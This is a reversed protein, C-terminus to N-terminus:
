NNSKDRKRRQALWIYVILICTYNILQFWWVGWSFGHTFKWSSLPWFLPTPYFQASHTPIDIFIHLLWGFMEFVPRRFLLSVVAFVIFFIVISHSWNYLSHALQSFPFNGEPGQRTILESYFTHTIKQYILATFPISFAFIDPFIGWFLSWYVNLPKTVKRNVIRAGAATWLGHAFIDM